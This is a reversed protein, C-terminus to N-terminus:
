NNESDESDESDEEPRSPMSFTALDPFAKEWKLEDFVKDWAIVPKFNEKPPDHPLDGFIGGFSIDMSAKTYIDILNKMRDKIEGEEFPDEREDVEKIASELNPAEEELDGESTEEYSYDDFYDISTDYFSFTSDVGVVVDYHSDEFVQEEGVGQTTDLAVYSALGMLFNKFTTEEIKKDLVLDSLKSNLDSWFSQYAEIHDEYTDPLDRESYEYTYYEQQILQDYLDPIIDKLESDLVSDPHPEPDDVYDDDQPTNSM